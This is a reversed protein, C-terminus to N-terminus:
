DFRFTDPTNKANLNVNTYTDTIAPQDGVYAIWQVPMNTAPNIYVENKTIGGWASPTNVTWTDVVTAVGGVTPGPAESVFTSRSQINDRFATWAADPVTDGYLDTLQSDHISFPLVISSTSPDGSHAQAQDGGSWAVGAGESYGKAVDIRAYHPALYYFNWTADRHAGGHVEHSVITMTYNTWGNAATSFAQWAPGPTATQAAAPLALALGLGAVMFSRVFHM